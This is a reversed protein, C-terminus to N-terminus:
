GEKVATFGYANFKALKPALREPSPPEFAQEVLSMSFERITGSPEGTLPDVDWIYQNDQERENLGILELMADKDNANELSITFVVLLSLTRM